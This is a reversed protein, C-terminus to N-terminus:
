EANAGVRGAVLGFLRTGGDLLQEVADSKSRTAYTRRAELQWSQLVLFSLSNQERANPFDVRKSTRFQRHENVM